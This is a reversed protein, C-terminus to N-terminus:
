GPQCARKHCLPACDAYWYQGPELDSRYRNAAVRDLLLKVEGYSTIIKDVIMGISTQEPGYRVAASSDLYTKINEYTTPNVPMLWNSGAGDEYIAKCANTVATKANASMTAGSVKNDTIFTPYGGFSRPLTTGNGAYREGYQIHQEMTTLLEPLVKNAQYQYPDGMGYNQLPIEMASGSLKIEKHYIASYNYNSTISTFGISNSDAGEVRAMGVITFAALSAITFADVATQGFARTVTLAGASNASVWLNEGAPTRLVHGVQVMNGDAITLAVVTTASGITASHNFAGVKPSNTDELWECKTGKGTWNWGAAGDLGGIAVILPIDKPNINAIVNSIVRMQPTTDSYTTYPSAINNPM